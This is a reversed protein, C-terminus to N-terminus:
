CGFHWHSIVLPERTSHNGLDSSIPQKYRAFHCRRSPLWGQIGPFLRGNMLRIWLLILWDLALLCPPLPISSESCRVQSAADYRHLNSCLDLSGHLFTYLNLSTTCFTFFCTHGSFCCLKDTYYSLHVNGWLLFITPFLSYVTQCHSHHSIFHNPPLLYDPFHTELM